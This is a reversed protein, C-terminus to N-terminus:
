SKELADEPDDPDPHVPEWLEYKVGDPGMVHAFRGNADPPFVKTPVIGREALQALMGDLDDVRFNVMFPATSPDFYDSTRSFVSLLTYSPRQEGEMERWKAMWGFSEIPIGFNDRLWRHTAESDSSKMFIGGIGVVKAM